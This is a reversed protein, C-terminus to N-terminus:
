NNAGKIITKGDLLLIKQYPDNSVKSYQIMVVVVLFLVFMILTNNKKEAADLEDQLFQIDSVFGERIEPKKPKKERCGKVRMERGSFYHDEINRRKNMRQQETYSGYKTHLRNGKSPSTCYDMSYSDRTEQCSPKIQEIKKLLRVERENIKDISRLRNAYPPNLIDKLNDHDSTIQDYGYDSGSSYDM